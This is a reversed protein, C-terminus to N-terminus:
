RHRLKKKATKPRHLVFFVVYMKKANKNSDDNMKKIRQWEIGVRTVHRNLCRLRIFGFLYRICQDAGDGKLADLTQFIFIPLDVFGFPGTEQPRARVAFHAGFVDYGNCKTIRDAALSVFDITRGAARGMLPHLAKIGDQYCSWSQRRHNRQAHRSSGFSRGDKEVRFM